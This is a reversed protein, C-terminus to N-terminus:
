TGKEESHPIIAIPLITETSSGAIEDLEALTQARLAQRPDTAPPRPAPPETHPAGGTIAPMSPTSAICPSANWVSADASAPAPASSPKRPESVASPAKAPGAAPQVDSGPSPPPSSFEDLLAQMRLDSARSRSPRPTARTTTNASEKRMTRIERLCWQLNRRGAAEYRRLLRASSSIDFVLGSEALVRERADHAELPGNLSMQLKGVETEALQAQAEPDHEPLEVLVCAEGAPACLLDRAEGCEEQSWGGARARSALKMWRAVLWECGHRTQRLKRVVFAPNQDLQRGLEEAATHHDDDWFNSARIAAAEREAFDMHLCRDIRMSAIATQRVLWAETANTPRTSSTWEAERRELALEEEHPQVVGAGTLGHRYANCRSHDKGEQTRPGTSRQANERNAEARRESTM